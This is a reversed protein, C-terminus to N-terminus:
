KVGYAKSYKAPTNHELVTNITMLARWVERATQIKAMISENNPHSVLEKKAEDLAKWASAERTGLLQIIQSKNIM